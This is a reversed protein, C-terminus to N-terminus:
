CKGAGGPLGCGQRFQLLAAIAGGEMLAAAALDERQAHM